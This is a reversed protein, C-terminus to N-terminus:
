GRSPVEAAIRDVARRLMPVYNDVDIIEPSTIVSLMVMPGVGIVGHGLGMYEVLYPFGAGFRVRGGALALEPRSGSLPLEASEANVSSVVTVGAVREPRTHRDQRRIARHVLSPPFAAEARLAAEVMPGPTTLRKQIATLDRAILVLREGVDETEPHLDISANCCNNHSGPRPPLGIPVVATREHAPGLLEDLAFSIATLAAATASYGIPLWRRDLVLVRLTREPGPSRNVETPVVGVPGSNGSGRRLAKRYESFWRLGWWASMAALVPLRAVGGAALRWGTLRARRAPGTGRPPDTHAAPAFLGLCIAAIARGDALAHSIQLALVVADGDEDAYGRPAGSLPGFLHIRWPCEAPDVQEGTLEGLRDLCEQWTRVPHVAFAGPGSDASVWHPRDLDGPVTLVRLRLDAVGQARERLERVVADMSVPAEPADFCLLTFIDSQQVESM